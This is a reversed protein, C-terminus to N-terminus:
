VWKGSFQITFWAYSIDRAKKNWLGNVQVNGKYGQLSAQPDCTMVYLSYGDEHRERGRPLLRYSSILRLGTLERFRMGTEKKKNADPM